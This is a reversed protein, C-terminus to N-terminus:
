LLKLGRVGNELGQAMKERLTKDGSPGFSIMLSGCPSNRVGLERCLEGFSQAARVCMASKLSGPKTDCGSYIIATNARSIGTCVDERAELLATKLRYRTLARLTFCGLLGGGIVIVDYREM